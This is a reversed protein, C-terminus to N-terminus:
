GSRATGGRQFEVPQPRHLGFGQAFDVGMGALADAVDHGGVWEAVVKLGFGHGIETVARVISQSMPEALLDQVFGGDIKIIDVPLSKLYGFSSMGAGFDDLAIRCGADRLRSIFQCLNGYGNLNCALVVLTFPSEEAELPEILFQSGVLLKMGHQRAAVHARVMGAMSCEDTIALAAYGLAKAREVLEEPWSAGKLFSFNSLCRLEAYDPLEHM